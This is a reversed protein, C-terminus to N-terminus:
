VEFGLGGSRGDLADGGILQAVSFNEDVGGIEGGEALVGGVEGKALDGLVEEEEDGFEACFEEEVASSHDVFFFVGFDDDFGAGAADADVAFLIEESEGVDGDGGFADGADGEM